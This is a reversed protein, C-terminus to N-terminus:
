DCRMGELLMRGLVHPRAGLAPDRKMPHGMEVKACLLVKKHIKRKYSSRRGIRSPAVRKRSRKDMTLALDVVKEIARRNTVRAMSQKLLGLWVDITHITHDAEVGFLLFQPLLLQQELV